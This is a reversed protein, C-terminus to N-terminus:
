HRSLDIGIIEGYNLGAALKILLQNFTMAIPCYHDHSMPVFPVIGITAVGQSADFAFAEGGGNSGFLILGPAYIAVEYETNNEAIEDISWFMAYDGGGVYGVGGDGIL